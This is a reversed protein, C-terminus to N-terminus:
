GEMDDGLEIKRRQVEVVISRDNDDAGLHNMGAM